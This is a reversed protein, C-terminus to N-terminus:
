FNKQLQTYYVTGLHGYERATGGSFIHAGVTWQLNPRLAYRLGPGFSRSGDRLNLAFYQTAKLQPAIDYSTALGLSPRGNPQIRANILSSLDDNRVEDTRAANYYLEGSFVLRKDLAYDAGVLAHRYHNGGRTKTFGLEGRFTAQGRRTAIDVGLVRAGAFKGAVVTFDLTEPSGRWFLETHDDDRRYQASQPALILSVRSLIGLKHEVLVADIALRGGYEGYDQSGESEDRLSQRPAGLHLGNRARLAGDNRLGYAAFLDGDFQLALRNRYADSVPTALTGTDALQATAMGPALAFLMRLFMAPLRASRATFLIFLM